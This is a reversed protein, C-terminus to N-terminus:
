RAAIGTSSPPLGSTTAAPILSGGSVRFGAVNSTGPTLVYLFQSHRSLAMDTPSSGAGTNAAVADSLNLEGDPELAYSSITGSGTNSTFAFRAHKTIVVWCAATQTDPISKSITNLTSQDTTRYSSLTSAGAAGGVAESVVVLGHRGFAFGFPTPNNSVQTTPASVRGDDGVNFIDILGTGKETVLLLDGDPSFEVQAPGATAGGALAVTAGPIPILQGSESLTFGSINPTGGGNVVYVLGEHETISVPRIGGSSAKSAFQLGRNTVTLASIENSGADVALLLSGDDSLVLAGQSGLGAGSGLSRTSVEQVWSLAGNAARQYAVVSNGTARNTMVYVAGPSDQAQASGVGIALFLSISVVLVFLRLPAHLLRM